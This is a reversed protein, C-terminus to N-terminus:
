IASRWPIQLGMNRKPWNTGLTVADKTRKILHFFAAYDTPREEQRAKAALVMYTLLADEFDQSLPVFPADEEVDNVKKVYYIELGNTINTDPQPRIEIQGDVLRYGEFDSDFWKERPIAFIEAYESDGTNYVGVAIPLLFDWPIDYLSTGNVINQQESLALGHRMLYEPWLTALQQLTQREGENLYSLLELDSFNPDGDPDEDKLRYRAQSM